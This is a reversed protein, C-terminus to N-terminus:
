KRISQLFFSQKGLALDQESILRGGLSLLMDGYGVQEKKEVESYFPHILLALGGPTLGEWLAKLIGQFTKPHRTAGLYNLVCFLWVMGYTGPVPRFQDLSQHFYRCDTEGFRRRAREVAQAEIDVLHYKKVLSHLPTLFHGEGGGADLVPRQSLSPDLKGIQTRIWPSFSEALASSSWPDELEYLKGLKRKLRSKFFYYSITEIM